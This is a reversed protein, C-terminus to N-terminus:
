SDDGTDKRVIETEKPQPPHCTDCVWMYNTKLRWWSTHFCAPCKKPPPDMKAMAREYAERLERTEHRVRKATSQRRVM